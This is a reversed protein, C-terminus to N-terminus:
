LLWFPSFFTFSSLNWIMVGNSLIQKWLKKTLKFSIIVRYFRSIHFISLWAYMHGLVGEVALCSIVLTIISIIFDYVYSPKTLFKWMNPLYLVLRALSEIFLVISIGRDTKLLINNYNASTSVKVSARM